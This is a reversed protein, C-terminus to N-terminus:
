EYGYSWILAQKKAAKFITSHKQFPKHHYVWNLNKPRTTKITKALKKTYPFIQKTRASAFWLTTGPQINKSLLEGAQDTMSHNNWWLSPDFAIYTQFLDPTTLFTEMVFLGALSEGILGRHQTTRYRAEIEPFLEKQIFARFKDSGGVVTAIKKDEENETFGTLDRRRETNEIGVLILPKIKGKEILESITSSVHMFDEKIGGDLMYLVPFSDTKNEYSRPFWINITRRENLETSQISITQFSGQSVIQAQVEHSCLLLISIIINRLQFAM